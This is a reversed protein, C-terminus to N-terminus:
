PRGDLSCAILMYGCYAHSLPPFVDGEALTIETSTQMNSHDVAAYTGSMQVNQGVKFFIQLDM